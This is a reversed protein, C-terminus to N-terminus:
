NVRDILRPLSHRCLDGYYSAVFLLLDVFRFLVCQAFPLALASFAGLLLLMHLVTNGVSTACYAVCGVLVFLIM